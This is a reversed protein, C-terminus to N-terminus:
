RHTMAGKQFGCQPSAAAAFHFFVLVAAPGSRGGEAKRQDGRRLAVFRMRSSEEHHADGSQGRNAGWRYMNQGTSDAADCRPRCHRVM